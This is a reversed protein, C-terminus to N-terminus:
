SGNGAPRVILTSMQQPREAVHLRCQATIAGCVSKGSGTPLRNDTSEGRYRDM